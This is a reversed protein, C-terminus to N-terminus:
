LLDELSKNQFWGGEREEEQLHASGSVGGGRWGVEGIGDGHEGFQPRGLTAGATPGGLHGHRARWRSVGGRRSEAREPRGRWGAM